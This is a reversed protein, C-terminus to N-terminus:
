FPSTSKRHCFLYALSHTAEDSPFNLKNSKEIHPLCKSNESTNRPESEVPLLNCYLFLFTQIELDRLNQQSRHCVNVLLVHTPAMHPKAGLVKTGTYGLLVQSAKRPCVGGWWTAQKGRTKHFATSEGAEQTMFGPELILRFPHSCTNMLIYVPWSFQYSNLCNVLCEATISSLERRFVSLCLYRYRICMEADIRISALVGVLHFISVVCKLVMLGVSGSSWIHVRHCWGTVETPAWDETRVRQWAITWPGSPERKDEKPSKRPLFVSLPIDNGWCPM